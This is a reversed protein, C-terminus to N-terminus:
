IRIYRSTGDNPRAHTYRSTTHLSEHGLSEKVVAITAGNDLAHSANAHRLWHASVAEEIGARKAAESVIRTIAREELATAGKRSKFVAQKQEGLAQLEELMSQSILVYRTKGGKGFVTISAGQEIKRIDKWTLTAIEGVRMGTMYMLRLMAHDRKNDELAIMRIVDEQSLIRSALEDKLKPAKLTHAINFRIAGVDMAWSYLSKIAMIHLNISSQKLGEPSGALTDIYAQLQGLTIVDLSVNDVFAFLSRLIRAYTRQTAQPRGHLYEHLLKENLSEGDVTSVTQVEGDVVLAQESKVVTIATNEM